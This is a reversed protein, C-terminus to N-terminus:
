STKEYDGSGASSDNGFGDKGFNLSENETEENLVTERLFQGVNERALETEDLSRAKQYVQEFLIINSQADM